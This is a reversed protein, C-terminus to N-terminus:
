TLRLAVLAGGAKSDDWGSSWNSPRDAKLIDVEFPLLLREISNLLRDVLVSYGGDRPAHYVLWSWWECVKLVEM